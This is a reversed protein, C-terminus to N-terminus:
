SGAYSRRVDDLNIRGERYALLTDDSVKAWDIPNTDVEVREVYGRKRGLTKLSFAIAWAEGNQVAKMLALEATDLFGERQEQLAQAVTPHRQVYARITNPACNLKRAALTIMGRTEQIALIVQETTYREPKTLTHAM